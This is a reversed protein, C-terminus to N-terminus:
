MLRLWAMLEKSLLVSGVRSTGRVALIYWRYKPKNGIAKSTIFELGKWSWGKKSGLEVQSM